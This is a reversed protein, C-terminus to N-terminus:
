KVGQCGSPGVAQRGSHAFVVQYIHLAGNDRHVTAAEVTHLDVGAVFSRVLGDVRAALPLTDSAGGAIVLPIRADDILISDVEDIVATAFPRHVRDGPHLALGDRLYDFGVENATTYAVDARYAARRGSADMTRHVAAVSLGMWEYVGRMWDADRGALYDNATLVHVGERDRAYWVIAPVAALTKGEGTAMEVVRGAALAMAARIQVDFMNLGLVRSVVVATAAIIEILSSARRGAGRLDDDKLKAFRARSKTVQDFTKDSRSRGFFPRFM